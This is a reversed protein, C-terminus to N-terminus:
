WVWTDKKITTIYIDWSIYICENYIYFLIYSYLRSLRYLLTVQRIPNWCQGSLTPYGTTPNQSHFVTEGVRLMRSNGIYKQRSSPWSSKGRGHWCTHQAGEQEPRTKTARNILCWWWLKLTMELLCLNVSSKGSKNGKWVRGRQGKELHVRLWPYLSLASTYQNPRSVVPDCRQM